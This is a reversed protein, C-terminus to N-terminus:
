INEIAQKMIKSLPSVGPALVHTLEGKENVLYKTFNWFPPKNNWGNQDSSSLWQYVQNQDDSKSVSSKKMVPFSLDFNTTCFGAIIRDDYNEQRGYDNSPFALIMLDNRKERYLKELEAYQSTYICDSATNVLLVKKGRLEEFHYTSGTIQPMSLRYFSSVPSKGKGSYVKAAGFVGTITKYFPYLFAYIRQRLTM